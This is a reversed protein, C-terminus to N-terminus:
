DGRGADLRLVRSLVRRHRSVLEYGRAFPWPIADVIAAAWALRPLARLLVPLAAAGSRRRGRADVVHVSEYRRERPLDRLLRTGTASGIGAVALGGRRALQVALWTCFGCDEDYL